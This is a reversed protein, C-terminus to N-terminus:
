EVFTIQTKVMSPEQALTVTVYRIPQIPEARSYIPHSPKGTAAPGPPIPGKPAPRGPAVVSVTLASREPPSTNSSVQDICLCILRFVVSPQSMRFPQM